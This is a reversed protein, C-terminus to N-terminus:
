SLQVKQTHFLLELHEASIKLLVNTINVYMQTHARTRTYTHHGFVEHECATVNLMGSANCFFARCVGYCLCM